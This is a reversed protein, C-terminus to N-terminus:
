LFEFDEFADDFFVDQKLVLEFPAFCVVLVAQEFCVSRRGAFEVLMVGAGDWIAKGAFRALIIRVGVRIVRESLPDKLM